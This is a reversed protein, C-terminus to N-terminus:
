FNINKRYLFYFFILYLLGILGGYIFIDLYLGITHNLILNNGIIYVLISFIINLLIFKFPFNFKIIKNTEIYGIMFLLVQSLVTIIGSGMFSFKPIFIINGIINFLAVVINIKLLKSENNSSILIYIFLNSIFYFVLVLLVIFFVSSSSFIHGPSNIYDKNAVLEIIHNRYLTGFVLLFISFSFLIKFSINILRKVEKFDKNEFNRSFESLISNLYFGGVVMLVEVIKMPLSYLAISLDSLKKPELLSILIIDVKFYVVSLFLALGYPLSIKFIHKIYKWDFAFGIQTIKRAYFYNLGTNLAIGVLGSILIYYFQLSYNLLMSKKFFVFIVLCIGLFTILKGLITSLLSFEMKLNAQMLALISSNLLSILTFISIIFISIITIKDNYGPLFYAIGVSLFIIVIGLLTRLTMVNSVIKKADDKNKTIERITITYLGLDALFAFIGLYNYVKSYLGFLEQSLYNTLISLLLISIIATGAKSLIQAITNIFIKKFM